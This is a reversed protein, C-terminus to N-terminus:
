IIKHEEYITVDESEKKNKKATTTAHIRQIMKMVYTYGHKKSKEWRTVVLLLIYCEPCDNWTWRGGKSM